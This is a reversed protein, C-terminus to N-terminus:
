CGSSEYKAVERVLEGKKAKSSLFLRTVTVSYHTGATLLLDVKGDGDLDGAWRLGWADQDCDTCEFLTQKAEGVRLEIRGARPGASIAELTADGVTVPKGFDYLAVEAEILPKLSARPAVGRILMLPRAEDTMGPVTVVVGTKVSAPRGDDDIPHRAPVFTVRTAVLRDPWLASWGSAGKKKTAGVDLGVPMLEEARASV